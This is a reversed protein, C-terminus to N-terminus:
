KTANNKAKKDKKSAVRTFVSSEVPTKLVYYVLVFWHGSKEM